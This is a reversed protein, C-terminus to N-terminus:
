IQSPANSVCVKGSSLEPLLIDRLEAPTLSESQNALIRNFIPFMLLELERIVESDALVVTSREFTM